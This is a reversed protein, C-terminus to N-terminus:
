GHSDGCPGGLPRQRQHRGEGDRERDSGHGCGARQRGTRVCGWRREIPGVYVRASWFSASRSEPAATAITTVGSPRPLTRGSPGVRLCLAPGIRVIAERDLARRLREDGGDHQLEDTFSAQVKV